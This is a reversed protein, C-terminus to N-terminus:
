ANSKTVNLNKCLVAPTIINNGFSPPEAAWSVLQESDKGVEVINKMLNLMNDSIRIDKVPHQVKGNKVLFVSDRPITSFNGTQFNQFTTYWTNTVILGNKMNKIMENQNAKGPVIYTNSPSPGMLGANGTSKTKYKQATSYNHLYNKFIGNQIIPTKQSPTGEEDFIFSDVGYPLNAWDYITLKPSAVKEDIKKLFSMGSEISDISSAGAVCGFLDAMPLPLFLIDYKGASIPKPNLGQKAIIGAESAPKSPNFGKLINSQLIKHGSAENSALARVSISIGTGRDKASLGNSSVSYSEDSTVDFVGTVRKAGSKIASNIAAQVMDVGGDFNVLKKDFLGEVKKYKFPGQSIGYFDEKPPVLNALRILKNLTNDIEQKTFNKINASVVKKNLTLFVGTSENQWNKTVAIENNVFKIQQSNTRAASVLVDNAGLLKAKRVTYEPVDFLDM